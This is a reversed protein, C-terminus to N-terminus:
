SEPRRYAPVLEQLMRRVTEADNCRAAAILAGIRRSLDAAPAGPEVAANYAGNTYVFIREHRTRGYHESDAFVEEFLKEGPRLQTYVVEIDRGPEFGSLRILDRALDAIGVPEGMDLAFVEGGQGLTGAQLVLQVAEPITMFYRTVDPHTVTVPGGAAIQKQFYPVVSGRSGLVNGLRVCVFARGTCQAAAEVIREAVWKSAGMVSTPNVAKDTSILVFRQVDNAVAANVLNQTGLVNNTIAEAENCEMLPVHKHAAAHFVIEPRYTEFIASIREAFRIDAIVPIIPVPTEGPGALRRAEQLLQNHAEFVSNEGHGLIVLQAPRCHLVQRCIESGISGGGGTILVRKGQLMGAVATADTQVPARRLLDEIQVDRLQKVSVRGDLLEFIGPMTRVQVGAATCLRTIERITPGPATPIALIVQTINYREVLSPIALRDGLVPVNHIRLGLKQSDDDVFGVPDLGLHPNQQMERVIMAGADGAGIVLVNQAAAAPPHGNARKLSTSRASTRLALRPVAVVTLALPYFIFPVSRPPLLSGPAVWGASTLGRVGVASGVGVIAAALLTAAALLWLEEISAYRWHRAYIGAAYFTAPMVLLALAVAILCAPWYAGLDFHELRIAYAAYVAPVILLLDAAFLHRNRLHLEPLTRTLNM